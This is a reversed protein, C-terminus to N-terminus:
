VFPSRRLLGESDHGLAALVRRRIRELEEQGDPVLTSLLLRPIHNRLWQDAFEAPVGLRKCPWIMKDSVLNVRDLLGFTTVPQENMTSRNVVALVGGGLMAEVSMVAECAHRYYAVEDAGALQPEAVFVDEASPRTFLKYGSHFDPFEELSTVYELPLPRGTVAAYYQLADLLVRDALEELEGRAFGMPRQKSFRRGLVLVRDTDAETEVHRATRVFNLLENGFHDGDFDIVAFYELAPNELLVAMGERLANLKGVATERVRTQVGLKRGVAEAAQKGEDTGDINLCICDPDDFQQCCVFLNDELLRLSLPLDIAPPFYAPVVAGTRRRLAETSSQFSSPSM